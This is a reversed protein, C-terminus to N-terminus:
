VRDEKAEGVQVHVASAVSTFIIILLPLLRLTIYHLTIHLNIYRMIHFYVELASTHM